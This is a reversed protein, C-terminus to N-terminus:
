LGALMGLIATMTVTGLLTSLVVASAGVEGVGHRTCFVVFTAFIPVSAFLIADRTAEASWGFVAAFAMGVLAPHVFLKAASLSLVLPGARTIRVQVLMGGILFLAIFPAAQVISRVVTELPPPLALGSALFALGAVLGITVPSRLLPGVTRAASLGEARLDAWLALTTVIPIIFLIEALVVWAFVQAARDPIIAAAIPYGLFVTNSSGAALSLIRARGPSQRTALRLALWLLFVAALSASGYLAAKGFAFHALGGGSGVASFLLVPICANMLFRNLAPLGEQPFLGFRVFAAGIGIMLFVPLVLQLLGSM